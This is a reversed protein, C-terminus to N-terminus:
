HVQNRRICREIEPEQATALPKKSARRSIVIVFTNLIQHRRADVNLSVKEM